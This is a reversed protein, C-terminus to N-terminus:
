SVPVVLVIDCGGPRHESRVHIEDHGSGESSVKTPPVYFNRLRNHDDEPRAINRTAIFDANDSNCLLDTCETPVTRSVRPIVM